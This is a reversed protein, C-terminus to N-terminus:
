HPSRALSLLRSSLTLGTDKAANPAIEFMVRDQDLFLNITAGKRLMGPSESVVLVSRSKVRSLQSARGSEDNPIFLLNCSDIDTWAIHRVVIPRNEATKNRVIADLSGQLSDDGVIGIVFPSSSNPFSSAPWTVFKTFNYVFAAKVGM